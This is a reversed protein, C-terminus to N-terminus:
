SEARKQKRLNFIAGLGAFVLLIIVGWETLTPVALPDNLQVQTWTSKDNYNVGVPWENDRGDYGDYPM